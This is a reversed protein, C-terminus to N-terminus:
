EHEGRLEFGANLGYAVDEYGMRVSETDASNRASKKIRYISLDDQSEEFAEAAARLMEESHTTCFLQFPRIKQLEILGKWFSKMVGHHLGSDIEDVIVRQPWAHLAGTIILLMRCFGDGLMNAPIFKSLGIDVLVVDVGAKSSVTVDQIKPNAIQLAQILEDKKKNTIFANVMAATESNSTARRAHIYFAGKAWSAGSVLNLTPKGHPFILLQGDYKRASSNAAYKIGYLSNVIQNQGENMSGQKDMASEPARKEVVATHILNRHTEIDDIATIEKIDESEGFVTSFKIKKSFDLDLFMTELADPNDLTPSAADRWDSIIRLWFDSALGWSAIGIAELVSTKGVSNDGLIITFKRMDKLTLQKISRYNEIDIQTLLDMKAVKATNSPNSISDNKM